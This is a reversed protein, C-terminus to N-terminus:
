HKCQPAHLQGQIPTRVSKRRRAIFLFVPWAQIRVHAHDRTTQGAVASMTARGM